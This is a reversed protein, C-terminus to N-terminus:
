NQSLRYLNLIQDSRGRVRESKVSSLKKLEEMADSFFAATKFLTLDHRSHFAFLNDIVYLGSLVHIENDSNLLHRTHRLLDAGVDKKGVIILANARVRNNEANMYERAEDAFIDLAGLVELANAKIRSNEAGLFSKVFSLARADLDEARVLKPVLMLVSALIEDSGANEEIFKLLDLLLQTHTSDKLIIKVDKLANFLSWFHEPNWNTILNKLRRDIDENSLFYRYESFDKPLPRLTKIFLIEHTGFGNLELVETSHAQALEMADGVDAKRAAIAFHKKNEALEKFLGIGRKSVSFARGKIKFKGDEKTLMLNDFAFSAKFVFDIHHQNQISLAHKKGTEFMSRIVSLGRRATEAQDESRHYFVREDGEDAAEYFGYRQAVERFESFVPSLLADIISEGHKECLITYRNLDIRIMGGRFSDGDKAGRALEIEIGDPVELSIQKQTLNSAHIFLEKFFKGETSIPNLKELKDRRGARMYKIQNFYERFVIMFICLFFVVTDKVNDKLIELVKSPSLINENAPLYGVILEYPGFRKKSVYYFLGEAQVQVHRAEEPFVSSDSIRYNSSRNISQGDLRVDFFDFYSLAKGADLFDFALQIQKKEFFSELVSLTIETKNRQFEIQVATKNKTTNYYVIFNWFNVSVLVVILLIYVLSITRGAFLRKLM